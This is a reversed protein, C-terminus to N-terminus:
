RAAKPALHPVYQRDTGMIHTSLWDSLFSMVTISLGLQGQRHADRLDVLKKVFAVHEQRHRESGAYGSDMMLKEEAGFHYQTYSVLGDLVACVATKGRGQQMAADLENVMDVLRQHQKDIEIVGLELRNSWAILAM